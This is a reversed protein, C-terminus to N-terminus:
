RLLHMKRVQTNKGDSLRYLYLASSVPEGRNNTGDWIVSHNGASQFGNVLTRIEQGLTNYIRLSIQSSKTLNYRITTSPNFPNPYNQALEFISLVPTALPASVVNGVLDCEYAGNGHTALRLK